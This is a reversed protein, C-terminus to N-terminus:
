FCTELSGRNRLQVQQCAEATQLFVEADTDLYRLINKVSSVTRSSFTARCTENRDMLSEETRWDSASTNSNRSAKGNHDISFWSTMQSLRETWEVTMMTVGCSLQKRPVCTDRKFMPLCFDTHTSLSVNFFKYQISPITWRKSKQNCYKVESKRVSKSTFTGLPHKKYHHWLIIVKPEWFFRDTFM